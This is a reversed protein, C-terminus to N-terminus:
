PAMMTCALEPSTNESSTPEPSLVAVTASALVIASSSLPTFTGVGGLDVVVVFPLPCRTSADPLAAGLGAVAAGGCRITVVAFGGFPVVVVGAGVFGVGEVAVVLGGIILGGSPGGAEVVVEGGGVVVVEGGGVVVVVEGGGVVVV